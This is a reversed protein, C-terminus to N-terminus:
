ASSLLCAPGQAREGGHRDRAPTWSRMGGGAGSEAWVVTRGLVARPCTWSHRRPPAGAPLPSASGGKAEGESLSPVRRPGRLWWLRSALGCWAPVRPLSGLWGAAVLSSHPGLSPHPSAWVLDGTGRTRLGGAVGSCTAWGPRGASTGSCVCGPTSLVRPGRRAPYM